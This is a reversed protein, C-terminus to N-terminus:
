LKTKGNRERKRDSNFFSSILSKMLPRILISNKFILIIIGLLLLIGGIAFFGLYLSDFLEGLYFAAGFSLFIIVIPFVIMLLLVAFVKSSLLVITEIIELKYYDLKLDLYKKVDSFLIRIVEKLDRDNM